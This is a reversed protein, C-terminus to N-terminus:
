GIASKVEGLLATLDTLIETLAGNAATRASVSAALSTITLVDQASPAQFNGQPSNSLYANLKARLLALDNMADLEASAFNAQDTPDPSNEPQARENFYAEADAAAQISQQLCTQIDQDEQDNAVASTPM